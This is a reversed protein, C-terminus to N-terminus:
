KQRKQDTQRACKEDAPRLLIAKFEGESDIDQVECGHWHSQAKLVRMKERTTCVLVGLGEDRGWELGCFPPMRGHFFAV